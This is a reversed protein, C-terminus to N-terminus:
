WRIMKGGTVAIEQLKTLGSRYIPNINVKALAYTVLALTYTDDIGDDLARFLCYGARFMVTSQFAFKEYKLSGAM